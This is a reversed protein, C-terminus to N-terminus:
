VAGSRESRSPSRARRHALRQGAPTQQAALMASTSCSPINRQELLLRLTEPAEPGVGGGDCVEESPPTARFSLDASQQSGGGGRSALRASTYLLIDPSPLPVSSIIPM